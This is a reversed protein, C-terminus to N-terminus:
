LQHKGADQSCEVILMAHDPVGVKTNKAEPAMEQFAWSFESTLVQLAPSLFAHDIARESGSENHRFSYGSTPRAHKWGMHTLQVMCDGCLSAGDGPSTNFDGAIMSRGHRLTQAAELLWEWTLRKLRRGEKGTFAPMRFGLVDVDSDRLVVHLANPPVSSYIPPAVLGGRIMAERSAILVQNEGKLQGSTHVHKLGIASLDVLFRGHDQGEVYETLVVIDASASQIASPIWEPVRRRAARHNLNWALVRM